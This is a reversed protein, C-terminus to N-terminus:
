ERRTAYRRAAAYRIMALTIGILLVPVPALLMNLTLLTAKLTEIKDRKGAKLRNLEKKFKRIKENLKRQETLVTSHILRADAQKADALLTQLEEEAQNIAKKIKDEEAATAKEAEEEIEELVHFPRSFRGRSRIAILDGSGSLFDLANFILSANDGVQATGFISEQYALIDSIMDVDAFVLVAADSSSEQMVEPAPAADEKGSTENENDSAEDDTAEATDKDESPLGDPFNTKLTGSIRCALMVTKPGKTDGRKITEASPMMLQLPNEPRWEKGADTTTLLPTVTTEADEIQSLSGAFIVRLSHLDTTIVERSNVCDENLSLFTLITTRPENRQLSAKLALRHDVTIIENDMEVGWTRLLANLDSKARYEMAAYPNSPDQPPRDVLCHPDLFVLLKGGKMVYQDIAFLTRESLNKPHVVMLFDLDDAIAEVDAQLSEVEYENRLHTVITWPKDPTRGQARLMQMMYPSLDSGTVPLSSLVGVRKKDRRTIGSILKSIDYEIFEQRQPEFIPIVKEKGYETQAVLGFFFNDDDSLPFRKVGHAIAEEEEDTYRRPDILTLTLQGDALKVYEELLKRVSIYYNNYHRIAEPGKMAATKAYYLKLHVPHNLGALINRTGDSLTYLKHETLDVGCRGAIKETILIACLTIIFICVVALITRLIAKM